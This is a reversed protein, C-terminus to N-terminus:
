EAGANILSALNERVRIEPNYGTFYQENGPKYDWHSIDRVVRTIQQTVADLVVRPQSGLTGTNFFAEDAPILFQGRLDEWFNQDLPGTPPIAPMRAADNATRALLSEPKTFLAAAAAAIGGLFSRRTAQM